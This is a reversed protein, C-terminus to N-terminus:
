LVLIPLQQGTGSYSSGDLNMTAWDLEVTITGNRPDSVPLICVANLNMVLTPGVSPILNGEPVGAVCDGTIAGNLRVLITIQGQYPPVDDVPPTTLLGTLQCTVVASAEIVGATAM